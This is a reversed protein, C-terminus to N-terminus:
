SQITTLLGQSEKAKPSMEEIEAEMKVPGDGKNRRRSM